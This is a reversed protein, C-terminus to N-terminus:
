GRGGAAEAKQGVAEDTGKQNRRSEQLMGLLLCIHQVAGMKLCGKKCGLHEGDAARSQEWSGAQRGMWNECLGAM